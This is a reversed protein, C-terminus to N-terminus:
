RTLEELEKVLAPPFVGRALRARTEAFVKKWEAREAETPEIVTMRKRFRELAADDEKRIRDTLAKCAVRGTELLAARQAAPLAELRAKSMVVGGISPELVLTNINDLRGAWQLQEAGLAAVSFVNVNGAALEPLAEPVSTQRPTVGVVQNLAPFIPDERWAWPKQGKLDTPHHVAFGKSILRDMGIDGWGLLEFGKERFVKEFRPRFKERVEDLKDWTSFLGPMTLANVDNDILGLGVSTVVAGDLQGAKVKSIQAAEDGQTANWYFDLELAGQTKEKVAKAWVRLVQGWPSERPALSGMKLVTPEAQVAWSSVLLAAALVRRMM